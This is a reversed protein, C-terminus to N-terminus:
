KKLLTLIASEKTETARPGDKLDKMTEDGSLLQGLRFGDKMGALYLEEEEILAIATQTDSLENFVKKYNLKEILKEKKDILKKYEEDNKLKELIEQDRQIKMDTIIDWMRERDM